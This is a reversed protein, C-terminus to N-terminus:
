PRRRRVSMPRSPVGLVILHRAKGSHVMRAALAVRTGAEHLEPSVRDPAVGVGGGLVLVADYVPGDLPRVSYFPRELSALLSKVILENGALLYGLDCCAVLAGVGARAACVLRLRHCLRACLAVFEGSFLLFYGAATGQAARGCARGRACLEGAGLRWCDLRSGQEGHACVQEGLHTLM